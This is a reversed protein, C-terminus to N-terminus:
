KGKKRRGQFLKPKGWLDFGKQWLLPHPPRRGNRFLSLYLNRDRRHWFLWAGYGRFEMRWWKTHPSSYTTYNM